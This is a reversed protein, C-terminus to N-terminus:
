ISLDLNAIVDELSLDMHVQDEDYMPFRLVSDSTARGQGQGPPTRGIGTPTGGGPPTRGIGTPTGGGSQSRVQSPSTGGGPPTRGEKPSTMGRSSPPRTVQPSILNPNTGLANMMRKTHPQIFKKLEQLSKKDDQNLETKLVHLLFTIGMAFMIKMQEKITNRKEEVFNVDIYEDPEELIFSITEIPHAVLGVLHLESSIKVTYRNRVADNGQSTIFQVIVKNGNMTFSWRVIGSRHYMSKYAGNRFPYQQALDTLYKDIPEVLQERVTRYKWYPVRKEETVLGDETISYLGMDAEKNEQAPDSGERAQAPDSGERAQAPDSGEQANPVPSQPVSNPASQLEAAENHVFDSGQANLATILKNNSYSKERKRRFFDQQLPLVYQLNHSPRSQAHSVRWQLNRNSADFTLLSFCTTEDTVNDAESVRESTRALLRKRDDKRREMEVFGITIPAHLDNYSPFTTKAYPYYRKYMDFLHKFDKQLDSLDVNCRITDIAMPLCMRTVVCPEVYEIKMVEHTEILSADKFVHKFTCVNNRILMNIGSIRETDGVQLGVDVSSLLIHLVNELKEPKLLTNSGSDNWATSTLFTFMNVFIRMLEKMTKIEDKENLYKSLGHGFPFLGVTKYLYASICKHAETIKRYTQVTELGSPSELGFLQEYEGRSYFCQIANDFTNNKRSGSVYSIAEAVMAFVMNKLIQIKLQRQIAAYIFAGAFTHYAKFPNDILSDESGFEPRVAETYRRGFPKGALSEILIEHAETLETKLSASLRTTSQATSVTQYYVPLMEYTNDKNIKTNINKVQYQYPMGWDFECVQVIQPTLIVELLNFAENSKREVLDPVPIAVDSDSGTGRPITGMVRLVVGFSLDMTKDHDVYTTCPYLYGAYIFCDKDDYADSAAAHLKCLFVQVGDVFRHSMAVGQATSNIYPIPYIDTAKQGTKMFNKENTVNVPRERYNPNGLINNFTNQFNGSHRDQDRIRSCITTLFDDDIWNAIEGEYVLGKFDIPNGLQTDFRVRANYKPVAKGNESHKYKKYYSHTVKENESRKFKSGLASVDGDEYASLTWDNRVLFDKTVV